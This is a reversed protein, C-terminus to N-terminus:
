FDDRSGGGRAMCCGGVRFIGFRTSCGFHLDYLTEITCVLPTAHSGVGVSM